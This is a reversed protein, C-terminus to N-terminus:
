NKNDKPMTSIEIKKLLEDYKDLYSEIEKIHKNNMDEYRKTYEEKFELLKRDSQVRYEDFDQSLINHKKQLENYKLQLEDYSNVKVKLKAIEKELDQNTKNLSTIVQEKDQLREQFDKIKNSLEDQLQQIQERLLNNQDGLAKLKDELDQKSIKLSNIINELDIIDKDKLDLETKYKEQESDKVVNSYELSNIYLRQIAGVYSNFKEIDMQIDNPLASSNKNMEYCQCLQKLAEDQNGGLDKSIQKFTEYVDKTIRFSKPYLKKDQQQVVDKNIDNSDKNDSM